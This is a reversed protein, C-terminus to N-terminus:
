MRHSYALYAIIIWTEDSCVCTNMEQFAPSGELIRRSIINEKREVEKEMEGSWLIREDKM